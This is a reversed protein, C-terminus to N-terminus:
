QETQQTKVVRWRASPRLRSIRMNLLLPSSVLSSPSIEGLEGVREGHTWNHTRNTEVNGSVGTRFLPGESPLLVKSRVGYVKMPHM